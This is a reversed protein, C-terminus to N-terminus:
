AVEVLSSCLDAFSGRSMALYQKLNLWVGLCMTILIVFILSHINFAAFSFCCIVYLPVEILGDASKKSVVPKLFYNHLLAHWNPREALVCCRSPLFPPLPLSSPLHAKVTHQSSISGKLM